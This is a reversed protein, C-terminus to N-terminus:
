SFTTELQGLTVKYWGYRSNKAMNDRIFLCAYGESDSFMHNEFIIYIYKYIYVCYVYENRSSEVDVFIYM